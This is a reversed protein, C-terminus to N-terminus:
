SEGSKPIPSKTGLLRKAFLKLPNVASPRIRSWARRSQRRWAGFPVRSYYMNEFHLLIDSRPMQRLTRGWRLGAWHLLQRHPGEPTLEEVRIHAVDGEEGPWLMFPMRRLTLAGEHAKRQLVYNLLGQEGLKFVEPHRVQRSEWDVYSDFDARCLIGRTAVLQGTNFAFGPFQFRPDLQKLKELSFFHSEIKDSDYSEFNVVFHEDYKELEDLVRGVFVIDSDLILCRGNGPGFLLELKAMGWGFSRNGSLKHIGVKLSNEIERTDFPGYKEDKM